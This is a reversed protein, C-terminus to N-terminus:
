EEEKFIDLDDLIQSKIKGKHIDDATVRLISGDCKKDSCFDYNYDNAHESKCKMCIIVMYDIHEMDYNM